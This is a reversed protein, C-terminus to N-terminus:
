RYPPVYMLGGDTWINNPSGERSLGIAPISADFIEEELNELLRRVVMTKGSGVEGVLVLLGRSQRLGRELRALAARSVETDFFDRM